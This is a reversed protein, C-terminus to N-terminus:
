SEFASLESWSLILLLSEQLCKNLHSSIEDNCNWYIYEMNNNTTFFLSDYVVLWSIWLMLVLELVFKYRGAHLKVM